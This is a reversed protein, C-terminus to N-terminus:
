VLKKKRCSRANTHSRQGRVPLGQIFRFGKFSGITVCRQIDQNVLRKLDSGTVYYRQVLRVLKEKQAATLDQVKLTSAFGLSDGIQHALFDTRTSRTQARSLKTSIFSGYVSNKKVLKECCKQM